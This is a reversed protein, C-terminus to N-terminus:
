RVTLFAATLDRHDPADIWPPTSWPVIRELDARLTIGPYHKKFNKQFIEDPYWLLSDQGQIPTYMFFIYGM